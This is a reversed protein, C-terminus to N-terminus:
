LSPIQQLCDRATIRAAPTTLTFAYGRRLRVILINCNGGLTQQLSARIQRADQNTRVIRCQKVIKWFNKAGFRFRLATDALTYEAERGRSNELDFTVLYFRGTM